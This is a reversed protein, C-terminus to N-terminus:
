VKPSSELKLAHSLQVMALLVATDAASHSAHEIFSRDLKVMTVPLRPLQSLSSYGIGFDDMAVKFGIDRADRLAQVAPASAFAGETVEICFDGCSLGHDHVLATLDAIMRCSALQIPSVNINMIPCRGPYSAKWVAMQKVAIVMLKHDLRLIMGRTKAIHIFRVPSIVGLRPHDWRALAEVAVLGHRALGIVPQYVLSLQGEVELALHLEQELQAEERRADNMPPRFGVVQNGGRQKAVHMADDAGQQLDITGATDTHALGLSATLRLSRGEVLFPQALVSIIVAAIGDAEEPTVGICCIVFSDGGLRGVSHRGAVPLLRRGAEALLADGIRAGFVQNVSRFRDIDVVLMAAMQSKAGANWTTFVKTIRNHSLLGTLADTTSSHHFRKAAWLLVALAMVTSAILLINLWVGYRSSEAVQQAARSQEATAVTALAIDIQLMSLRGADVRPISLAAAPSTERHLRATEYLEDLKNQMIPRLLLLRGQQASDNAMLQRLADQLRGVRSFATAYPLLYNEDGTLLYGRQGTEADRVALNLEQILGLAQYTHRSWASDERDSVIRQWTMAGLLLTVIFFAGLVVSNARVINDRAM